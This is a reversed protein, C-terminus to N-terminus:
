TLSVRMQLHLPLGLGCFYCVVPKGLAYVSGITPVDIKWEQVRLDESLGGEQRLCLVDLWVYHAGLNLMEIRILDLNANRPIPVPWEYGNIPSWVNVRDREDVWAHSIGWPTYGSWSPVVRNAYLDWARQCGTHLTKIRGNILM